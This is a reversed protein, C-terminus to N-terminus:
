EWEQFRRALVSDNEAFETDTMYDHQLLVMEALIRRRSSRQDYAWGHTVSDDDWSCISFMSRIEGDKARQLM